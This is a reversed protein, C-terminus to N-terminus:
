FGQKKSELVFDFVTTEILLLLYQNEDRTFDECLRIFLLQSIFLERKM